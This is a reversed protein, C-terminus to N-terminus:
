DAEAEVLADVAVQALEIDDQVTSGSVGIAGALEGGLYVPIGGGFVVIRGQNTNQIGYLPEGPQAMEGLKDTPLASAEKPGSFALATYAKNQAIDVSGLWAGDDRWLMKLNGGKDVFAIVMKLKRKRCAEMFANLASLISSTKM